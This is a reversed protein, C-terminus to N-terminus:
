MGLLGRVAQNVVQLLDPVVGGTLGGAVGTLGLPLSLGGSGTGGLLGQAVQNVVQLLGPLVGNDNQNLLLNTRPLGQLLSSGGGGIVGLLLQSIFQLLISVTGDNQQPTSCSCPCCVAAPPAATVPAITVPVVPPTVVSPVTCVVPANVRDVLLGAGAGTATIGGLLGGLPLGALLGAGGGGGLADLVNRLVTLILDILGKLMNFQNGVENMGGMTNNMTQQGNLVASLLNNLASVLNGLLPLIDKLGNRIVGITDDAFGNDCSYYQGCDRTDRVFGSFNCEANSCLGDLVKRFLPFPGEGCMNNMDDRDLQVVAGFLNHHEIQNLM